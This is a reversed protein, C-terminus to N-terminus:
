KASAALHRADIELAVREWGATPATRGYWYGLVPGKGNGSVSDYGGLDARRSVVVNSPARVVIEMEVGGEKSMWSGFTGILMADGEVKTALGMNARLGELPMAAPPHGKFFLSKKTAVFLTSPPLDNKVVADKPVVLRRIDSALPIRAVEFVSGTEVKISPGNGDPVYGAAPKKPRAGWDEPLALNLPPPSPPDASM